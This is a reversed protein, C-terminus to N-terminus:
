EEFSTQSELMNNVHSPNHNSCVPFLQYGIAKIGESKEKCLYCKAMLALNRQRMDDLLQVLRVDKYWQTHQSPM